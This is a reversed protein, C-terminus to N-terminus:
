GRWGVIQELTPGCCLWALVAWGLPAMILAAYAALRLRDRRRLNNFDSLYLSLLNM